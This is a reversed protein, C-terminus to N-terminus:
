IRPGHELMREGIGRIKARSAAVLPNLRSWPDQLCALAGRSFARLRELNPSRVLRLDIITRTRVALERKHGRMGGLLDYEEQGALIAREIAHAHAVIGPSIGTPLDMRRGGLYAHVKKGWVINYRAAVPRGHAIIWFLDLAGRELLRPLVLEHFARFRASGFAGERRTASWREGHLRELIRQGERLSSPTEVHVFTEQGGTWENWKRLARRVNQRHNAPLGQLYGAFSSPLPTHASVERFRQEVKEGHALLRESLPAVMSAEADMAALVVEDFNGLGGRLFLSVLADAVAAEAGREALPSLYESCIEDREPEGSALQELRVFPIGPPYFHVRSYLPVAGVLRRGDRFLAVRLPRSDGFIKWWASLWLSSMTPQNSGSRTVLEDWEESMRFFRSADNVVEASLSM